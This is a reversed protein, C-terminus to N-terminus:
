REHLAEHQHRVLPSLVYEIIRRDGTKIEINVAMGPALPRLRGDVMLAQKTPQLRATYIPGKKEDEIADRSVQAIIAPITGYKSYEFTDIKVEANQGEHVFGIDKNDLVVEIEVASAAPVIQMLPQAAPVVGGVTHVNLQQVTGDISSTLKMLKSHSTSRIVDQRSAAIIKSADSLQDLAIKQTEAILADRQNKASELQGQLDVRAQEQQSWTHQPVDHDQLLARYDKARETVFPLSQECRAIDSNLRQLKALYDRYMGDVHLQEDHWKERSINLQEARELAALGALVPPRGSKLATIMARARAGQVVAENIDVIAKERDADSSSADLEVLIDGAKIHQGETVYIARVSAVEVAAITKVRGSPIVKGNANVIIDVRGIISWAIVTLTMTAIVRGTWRATPSIPREQLSLAAPLFEAEDRSFGTGGHQRRQRWFYAFIKIYRAILERYAIARHQLTM